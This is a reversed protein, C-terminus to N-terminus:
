QPAFMDQKQNQIAPEQNRGNATPAAQPASTPTNTVRQESDGNITVNPIIPIARPAAIKHTRALSFPSVALRLALM